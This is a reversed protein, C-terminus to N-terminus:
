KTKPFLVTQTQNEEKLNKTLHNVEQTKKLTTKGEKQQLKEELIRQQSPNTSIYQKFKTNDHLIKTKGGITISHKAPYPLRPQYRNDRLTQL